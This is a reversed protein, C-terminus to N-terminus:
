GDSSRGIIRLMYRYQTRGGGVGALSLLFMNSVRAVAVIRLRGFLVAVYM